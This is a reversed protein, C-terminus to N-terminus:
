KTKEDNKKMRASPDHRFDHEEADIESLHDNVHALVDSKLILGIPLREDANSIVPLADRNDSKFLAMATEITEGEVLHRCEMMIDAVTKDTSEEGDEVVVKVAKPTIIGILNNESDVVPGAAMQHELLTLGAQVVPTTTTFTPFETRMIDAVTKHKVFRHTHGRQLFMGRRELQWHFFSKGVMQQTVTSAVAVSVMLIISVDYSGTLEFGIMITSIPAGLVAAAFAGM